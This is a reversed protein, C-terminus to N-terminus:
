IFLLSCPLIKAQLEVPFVSILQWPGGGQGLAWPFPGSGGGDAQGQAGPAGLGSNAPAWFDDRWGM